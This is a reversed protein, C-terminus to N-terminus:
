SNLDCTSRAVRGLLDTILINAHNHIEPLDSVVVPSLTFSNGRLFDVRMAPPM